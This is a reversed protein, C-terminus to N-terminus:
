ENTEVEEVDNKMIETVGNSTQVKLKTGDDSATVGIIRRGDKMKYIESEKGIIQEIRKM